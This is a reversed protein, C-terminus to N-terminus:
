VKHLCHITRVTAFSEPGDRHDQVACVVQFAIAGVQPHRNGLLARVQVSAGEATLDYFILKGMVRIHMVRGAICHVTQACM